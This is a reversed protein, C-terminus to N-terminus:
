GVRELADPAIARKTLDILIAGLAVARDNPQEREAAIKQRLKVAEAPHQQELLKFVDIRDSPIGSAKADEFLGNLRAQMARDDLHSARAAAGEIAMWNRATDSLVMGTTAPDWAAAEVAHGVAKQMETALSDTAAMAAGRM